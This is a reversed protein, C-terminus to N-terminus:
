NKEIVFASLTQKKKALLAQHARKKSELHSLCAFVSLFFDKCMSRMNIMSALAREINLRALNQACMNKKKM